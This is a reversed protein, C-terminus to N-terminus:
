EEDIIEAKDLEENAKDITNILGRIKKKLEVMGSMDNILKSHSKKKKSKDNIKIKRRSM